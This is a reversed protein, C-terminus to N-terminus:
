LCSLLQVGGLSFPTPLSILNQSRSFVPKRIYFFRQRRDGVFHSRVVGIAHGRHNIHEVVLAQRQHRLM